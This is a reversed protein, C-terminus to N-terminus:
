KKKKDLQILLDYIKEAKDNIQQVERQINDQQSKNIDVKKDLDKNEEKLAKIEKDSETAIEKVENKIVKIEDKNNEASLSLKVFTTVLGIILGGIAIYIQIDKISFKKKM